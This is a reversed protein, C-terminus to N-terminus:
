EVQFAFDFGKYEWEGWGAVDMMQTDYMEGYKNGEARYWEIGASTTSEYELVIWYTENSLERTPFEVFHWSPKQAILTADIEGGTIKEGVGINGWNNPKEHLSVLLKSGPAPPVRAQVYVGIRSINLPTALTFAQAQKVQMGVFDYFWTYRWNYVDYFGLPYARVTKRMVNNDLNEEPEPHHPDLSQVEVRLNRPQTDGAYYSFEFNQLLEPSSVTQNLLTKNGDLVWIHYASPIHRGYIQVLARVKYDETLTPREPVTFIDKVVIDYTYDPPEAEEEFFEEGLIPAALACCGALLLALMAAILPPCRM